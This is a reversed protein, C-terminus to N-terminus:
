NELEAIRQELAEIQSQQEKIAELLVPIMGSYNVAKKGQRDEKVLTPFVTEVEQALLGISSSREVGKPSAEEKWDFSVGNIQRIKDLSNSVQQINTKLSADSVESM